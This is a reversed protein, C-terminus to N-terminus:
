KVKFQKKCYPCQVKGFHQHKVMVELNCLRNDNKIGNKHHVEENLTLIRGLKKEM